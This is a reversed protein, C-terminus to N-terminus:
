IKVMSSGRLLQWRDILMQIALDGKTLSHCIGAVASKALRMSKLLQSRSGVDDLGVAFVEAALLSVFDVAVTDLISTLLADIASSSLSSSGPM